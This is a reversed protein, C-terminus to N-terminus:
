ETKEEVPEPAPLNPPSKKYKLWQHLVVLVAGWGFITAIFKIMGGIFPIFGVLWFILLGAIIQLIASSTSNGLSSLLKTGVVAASSFYGFFMLLMVTVVFLPILPIGLISVVLVLISPIFLLLGALGSLFSKAPEIVIIDSVRGFQNPMIAIFVVGIILIGVFPIFTLFWPFNWHSDECMDTFMSGAFDFDDVETIKGYVVAGQSMHIEGGVSVCDDHVVADPGLYIDGGVAVASGMVTGYIKADGGVAVADEVEDHRSITVSGGIKIKSKEGANLFGSFLVVPLLMTIVIRSIQRM